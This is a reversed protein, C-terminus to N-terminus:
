HKHNFWVKLIVIPSLGDSGNDYNSEKLIILGRRSSLATDEFKSQFLQGETVQRVKYTYM